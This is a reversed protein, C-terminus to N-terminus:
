GISILAWKSTIRDVVRNDEGEAIWKDIAEILWNSVLGLQIEKPATVGHKVFEVWVDTGDKIKVFPNMLMTMDSGDLHIETVTGHDVYHWGDDNRKIFEIVEKYSPSGDSLSELKAEIALQALQNKM